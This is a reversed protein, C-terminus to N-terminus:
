VQWAEHATSPPVRQTPAVAMQSVVDPAQTPQRTPPLSQRTAAGTHSGRVWCHTCHAVFVSQAPVTVGMQSVVFLVHTVQTVL